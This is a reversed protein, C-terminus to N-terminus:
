KRAAGAARERVRADLDDVIRQAEDPAAQLSPDAGGTFVGSQWLMAAAFVAAAILLIRKCLHVAGAAAEGGADVPLRRASALVRGAFGPRPVFGDGVGVRFPRRLDARAQLGARLAPEAALRANCSTAQAPSLEGDLYRDLLMLDQDSLQPTM